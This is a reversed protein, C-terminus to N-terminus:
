PHDGSVVVWNSGVPVTVTTNSTFTTTGLSQSPTVEYTGAGGSGSLIKVIQTGVAVGTGSLIAGAYLVGSTVGGVPVTLTTATISGDFELPVITIPGASMANYGASITYSATIETQNEFFAKNTGGGTAGGGGGGIAGWTSSNIDYGEYTALDTNFRIGTGAREATTGTPLKLSGTGGFAGDGSFTGDGLVSLDDPVYNLGGQVNVADCVIITTKGIPIAVTTGGTLTTGNLATAASIVVIQNTSNKIIYTKNAPPLCVTATAGPTGTLVIVAQRAQDTAGDYATLAQLASTVPVGIVGSIASELLTGLNVNTTTGWVGAQEGTGILTLRLNNSYTTM